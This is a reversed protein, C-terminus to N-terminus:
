LAFRLTERESGVIITARHDGTGLTKDVVVRAVTGSDWTGGDVTEVTYSEPPVYRGDLLVEVGDTSALLTRDGVNKVLLVVDDTGDTDGDAPHDRSLAESGPDSVIEVDTGIQKAVDAGRDDLSGAIGGVSTVMAGSVGAAVSVAAIFIILTTVSESAM